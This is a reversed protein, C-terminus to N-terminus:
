HFTDDVWNNPNNIIYNKIRNYEADNRIMRNHFRPQWGYDWNRLRTSDVRYKNKFLSM